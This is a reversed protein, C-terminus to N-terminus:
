KIMRARKDGRTDAASPVLSRPRYDREITILISSRREPYRLREGRQLSPCSYLPLLFSSRVTSLLLPLSISFSLSFHPPPLSIAPLSYRRMAASMISIQSRPHIGSLGGTYRRLIYTGRWSGRGAGREGGSKRTSQERAEDTFGLPEVGEIECVHVNDATHTGWM